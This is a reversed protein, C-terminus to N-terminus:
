CANVALQEQIRKVKGDAVTLTFYYAGGRRKAHDALRTLVAQRDTGSEECGGLLRVDLGGALPLTRLRPNENRVWGTLYKAESAPKGDAIAAKVAQDDQFVQVVDVVIRDNASDVKTIYAPTDGDPLVPAAAKTGSEESGSGTQGATGTDGQEPAQTQGQDANTSQDGAAAAPTAGAPAQRAVPRTAIALSTGVALALVILVSAVLVLQKRRRRHGESSGAQSSGPHRDLTPASM